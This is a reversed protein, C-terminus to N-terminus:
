NGGRVVCKNEHKPHSDSIFGTGWGHPKKAHTPFCGLGHSGRAGDMRDKRMPPFAVLGTRAERSRRGSRLHCTGTGSPRHSFLWPHFGHFADWHLGRTRSPRPSSVGWKRSGGAAFAVLGTRAFLSRRGWQLHGCQLHRAKIDAYAAEVLRRLSAADTATGPRLVQGRGAVLWGSRAAIRRLIDGSAEALHPRTDIKFEDINNPPSARSKM